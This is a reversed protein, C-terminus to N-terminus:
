KIANMVESYIAALIAGAIAVYVVIVSAETIMTDAAPFVGGDGINVIEVIHSSAYGWAAGIIAIVAVTSVIAMKIGAPAQVMGYIACILASLVAGGVLVYAWILNLGISSDSGGQAFAMGLLAVTIVLMLILIINLVNINKM